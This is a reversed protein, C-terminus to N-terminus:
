SECKQTKFKLEGTHVVFSYSFSVLSGTYSIDCSNESIKYMTTEDLFLKTVLKERKEERYVLLFQETLVVWRKRKKKALSTALWGTKIIEEETETNETKQDFKVENEYTDSTVTESSTKYKIVSKNTLNPASKQRSLKTRYRVSQVPQVVQKQFSPSSEQFNKKKQIRVQEALPFIAQSRQQVSARRSLPVVALSNSRVLRKRSVNLIPNEVVEAPIGRFAVSNRRRISGGLITSNNALSMSRRLRPQNDQRFRTRPRSKVISDSDYNKHKQIVRTERKSFKRSISRFSGRLFSGLGSNSNLNDESQSKQRVLKKNFKTNKSLSIKNRRSNTDTDSSDDHRM